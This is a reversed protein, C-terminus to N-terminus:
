APPTHSKLWQRAEALKSSTGRLKALRAEAQSALSVARGRAEPGQTWIAQALALEVEAIREQDPEAKLRITLAKELEAIARVPEGQRLYAVGLGYRSYAMFVHGEGLETAFISLAKQFSVAAEQPRGLALLIEGRNNEHLAVSPHSGGLRRTLIELAKTNAELAESPERSSLLSEALNGWSGAVDIDDGGLVQSKITLAEREFKTAQAFDGRLKAGLAKSGALWAKQLPPANMRQVVAEYFHIWRAVQEEDGVGYVLNYILMQLAEAATTDDRSSEAAWLSAEGEKLSGKIDGRLFLLSARLFSTAGVLPAYNVRAVQPELSAVQRALESSSGANMAARAAAVDKRLRDVEKRVAPDAPPKVVAKLGPIDSCRGLNLLSEAAPVANKLVEETPQALISTLAEAESVRENLCAMRLDMTEASQEGRVHTAECADRYMVGWSSTFKDLTDAVAQFTQAAYSKGTALFARRLKERNARGSATAGWFSGTHQEGGNCRVAPARTTAIAVSAAVPLVVAAATLAWRRRRASPDNELADLLAVLSEWREAPNAKLGRKLIKFLRHPVKSTAPPPTVEGKVVARTLEHLSTGPFPRCGYLGEYLAVCFAFQDSKADAPKGRLQEPAMYAPTGLLAGAQTIESYRNAGGPTTLSDMKALGNDGPGTALVRTDPDDLTVDPADSAVASPAFTAPPSPLPRVGSTDPVGNLQRALGFDMVRVKGDHGLMVNEPKFDRHIIGVAHADALGRGAAIFHKLVEKWPRQQAALWWGLTHGDVFEMAMFVSREFTGVDFVVVVNPHSLKAIAQAERLLRAHGESVTMGAESKVFLIKLAIKRDLEPDYAAYVEGMGGKGVLGLVVYRGVSEGRGLAPRRVATSRKTWSSTLSSV